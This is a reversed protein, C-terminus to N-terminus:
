RMLKAFMAAKLMDNESSKPRAEDSPAEAAEDLAAEDVGVVDFYERDLESSPTGSKIAEWLYGNVPTLYWLGETVDQGVKWNKVPDEPTGKGDETQVVKGLEDFQENTLQEMVKSMDCYTVSRYKPLEEVPVGERNRLTLVSGEEATLTTLEINM